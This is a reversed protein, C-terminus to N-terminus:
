SQNSVTQNGPIPGANASSIMMGDVAFSAVIPATFATTLVVKRLFQRRDESIGDLASDLDRKSSDSM